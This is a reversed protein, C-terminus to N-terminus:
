SHKIVNLWNRSTSSYCLIAMHMIWYVKYALPVILEYKMEAINIDALHFLLVKCILMNLLLQPM